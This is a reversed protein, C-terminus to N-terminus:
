VLHNAVLSGLLIRKEAGGWHGSEPIRQPYESHVTRGMRGAPGLRGLVRFDGSRVGVPPGEGLRWRRPESRTEGEGLPVAKVVHGQGTRDAGSVSRHHKRNSVLICRPHSVSLGRTDARDPRRPNQSRAPTGRM